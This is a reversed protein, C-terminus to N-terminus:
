GLSPSGLCLVPTDQPVPFLDFKLGALGAPNQPCPVKSFPAAAFFGELVAYLNGETVQSVTSIHLALLVRSELLGLLACNRPPQSSFLPKLPKVIHPSM